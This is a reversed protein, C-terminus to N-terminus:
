SLKRLEGTKIEKKATIIKIFKEMDYGNIKKEFLTLTRQHSVILISRSQYKKEMEISKADPLHKKQYFSGM